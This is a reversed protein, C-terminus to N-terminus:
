VLAKACVCVCCLTLMKHGGGMLRSRLSESKDGRLRKQLLRRGGALRLGSQGGRWNQQRLM